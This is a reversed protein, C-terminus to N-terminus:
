RGSKIIEGAKKLAFEREKRVLNENAVLELLILLAEHTGIRGIHEVAKLRLESSIDADAAITTLKKLEDPRQAM